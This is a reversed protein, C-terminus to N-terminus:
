KFNVLRGLKEILRKKSILPFYNSGLNVNEFKKQGALPEFM